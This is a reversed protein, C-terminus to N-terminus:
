YKIVPLLTLAPPQVTTSNGYISNSKSANIYISIIHTSSNAGDGFNTTYGTEYGLAGSSGGTNGLRGSGDWVAGTINPLGATKVTGVTTNGQPFKDILDPLNFTTEGDGEGYIDGIASFLDAYTTRSIASGDCVLWGSPAYSGGYYEITGIPVAVAWSASSGDNTLFKGAKGSVSPMFGDVYTKAEAISDDIFDMMADFNDNYDSATNKTKAVARHLTPRTAM